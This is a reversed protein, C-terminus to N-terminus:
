NLGAQSAQIANGPNSLTSYYVQSAGPVASINDIVIGSTGGPAALGAVANTTGWNGVTVGTLNFMYICSGACGTKNGQEPVSVFIYNDVGNQVDTIPSCSGGGGSADSTDAGTLNPGAAATTSMANNTIAVRWLTPRRSSTGTSISGCAYLYGTPSAPDASTYYANDFVGAYGIRTYIQGRGMTAKAMGNGAGNGQDINLAQDGDFQYIAHCEVNANNGNCPSAASTTDSAVFAYVRRALQDVIVAEAVGVSGSNTAAIAGAIQNSSVVAATTNDVTHLRGGHPTGPYSPTDPLRQTGVYVLDSESDYVPPSLILGADVTVPWGGTTVEAPTGSNFINTFKHLRGANDGVWLRDAAYDYYPSSNTNNPSGNLTISTMCPAACARYAAPAVSTPATPIDITGSSASWKLIVLSAVTPSRQIFAVQTGDLSIIPSSDVIAGTGTYHSWMTSPVPQPACSAYLQNVALITPQGAGGTLTAGAWTFNNLNEALTISNGAPGATTATVTVVAAAVTSTVGVLAGNRAIAASLNTAQNANSGTDQFFLGTNLTASSTLTLVNAGNTITVTRTAGTGFNGTVTGTRSAVVPVVGAASTPYVVFDDTCSPTATIDFNYKAPFVGPSGRGAPGMSISWDRQALALPARVPLEVPPLISPPPSPGEMVPAPGWPSPRPLRPTQPMGQRADPPALIMDKAQPAASEANTAAERDLRRVLAVLFRPDRYNELWQGYTGKAIAEAPLDPKSYILHRHSWDVPAPVRGLDEAHTALVFGSVWLGLVLRGVTAFGRQKGHVNM